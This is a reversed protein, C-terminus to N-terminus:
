QCITGITEMIVDKWKKMDKRDRRISKTKKILNTNALSTLERALLMQNNLLNLIRIKPVEIVLNKRQPSKKKARKRQNKSRLNRRKLNKKMMKVLKKKLNRRKLKKKMMKVLKKKLNRRIQNLSQGM